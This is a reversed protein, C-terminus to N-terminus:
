ATLREAKWRSGCCARRIGKLTEEVQLAVESVILRDGHATIRWTPTVSVAKAVVVKHAGRTRTPLDVQRSDAASATVAACLTIALVQLGLTFRREM